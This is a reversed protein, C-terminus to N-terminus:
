CYISKCWKDSSLQFRMLINVCSSPDHDFGTHQHRGERQPTYMTAAVNSRYMRCNWTIDVNSLAMARSTDPVYQYPWRFDDLYRSEGHEWHSLLNPIEAWNPDWSHYHPDVDRSSETSETSWVGAMNPSVPPDSKKTGWQIGIHDRYM